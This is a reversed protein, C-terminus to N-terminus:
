CCDKSWGISFKWCKCHLDSLVTDAMVSSGSFQIIMTIIFM